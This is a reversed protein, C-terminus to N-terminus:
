TKIFALSFAVSRGRLDVIAGNGDTLRFQLTQLQEGACQIFEGPHFLKDTIYSGADANVMIQRIINTEGRPGLSSFSGFNGSTLYLVRVAAIDVHNPLLATEGSFIARGGLESGIVELADNPRTDDRASIIFIAVSNSELGISLQGTNTGYSVTFVGVALANLLAQIENALTVGNYQGTALTIVLNTDANGSNILRMYIRNRTENITQFVNPCQFSDVICVYDEPVQINQALSFTFDSHSGSSRYRSDIYLKYPFM